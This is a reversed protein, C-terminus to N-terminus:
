DITLNDVPANRAARLLSVLKLSVEEDDRAFV